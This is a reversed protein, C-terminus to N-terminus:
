SGLLDPSPVGEMGSFNWQMPNPTFLRSDLGDKRLDCPGELSKYALQFVLM